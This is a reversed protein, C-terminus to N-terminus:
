EHEIIIDEPRDSKYKSEFKRRIWIKLSNRTIPVLLSFGIIDTLFGPTILVLGAVVILLADIIESSPVNGEGFSKQINFLTQLGQIKALYPNGFMGELYM